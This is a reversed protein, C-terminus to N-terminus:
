RRIELPGLYIRWKVNTWTKGAQEWNQYGVLLGRSWGVWVFQFRSM